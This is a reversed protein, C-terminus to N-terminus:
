PGARPVLSTGGVTAGSGGVGVGLPRAQTGRLQLIGQSLFIQGRIEQPSPIREGALVLAAPCSTEVRAM